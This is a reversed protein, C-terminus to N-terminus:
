AALDPGGVSLDSTSTEKLERVSEPDFESELRTKAWTVSTLATSFVAKGAAQWIQAYDQQVAPLMAPDAPNEWFVMTEYMRRGYLYTGVSRELDNIFTHVEADPESWDFNGNADAVYGDLSAIASYILQAM